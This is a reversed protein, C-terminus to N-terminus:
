GGQIADDQQDVSTTNQAVQSQLRAIYEADSEDANKPNGHILNAVDKVLEPGFQIGLLILQAILQENM